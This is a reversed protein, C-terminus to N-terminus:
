FRLSAQKKNEDNWTLIWLGFNVIKADCEVAADGDGLSIESM